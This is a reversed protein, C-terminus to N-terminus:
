HFHVGCLLICCLIHLGVFLGDALSGADGVRWMWVLRGLVECGLCWEGGMEGELCWARCDQGFLVGVCYWGETVSCTTGGM